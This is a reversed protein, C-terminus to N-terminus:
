IWGLVMWTMINTATKIRNDINCLKKEEKCFAIGNSYVVAMFAFMVLNHFSVLSLCNENPIFFFPEKFM